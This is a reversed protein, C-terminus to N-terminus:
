AGRLEDPDPLRGAARDAQILPEVEAWWALVTEQSDLRRGDFTISVDDATSPRAASIRANFEASAMDVMGLPYLGPHARRGRRVGRSGATKGMVKGM